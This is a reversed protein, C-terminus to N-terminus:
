GPDETYRRALEAIENVGFPKRLAEDAGCQAAKRLLHADASLLIVPVSSTEPNKKYQCCIESGDSVRMGIDIFVMDPPERLTALSLGDKSIIVDYGQWHLIMQLIQLIDEDDDAVYIRKPKM